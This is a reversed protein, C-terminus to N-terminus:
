YLLPAVQEGTVTRGTRSWAGAPRASPARAPCGAGGAALSCGQRPRRGPPPTLARASVVKATVADRQLTLPWSSPHHGRGRSRYSAASGRPRGPPTVGTHCAPPSRCQGGSPASVVLSLAGRLPPPGLASGLLRCSGAGLDGSRTTERRVSPGTGRRLMLAVGRASGRPTLTPGDVVGASLGAVTPASMRSAGPVLRPGRREVGHQLPVSSRKTGVTCGGSVRLPPGRVGERPVDPAEAV